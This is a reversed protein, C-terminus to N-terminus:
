RGGSRPAKAAHGLADRLWEITRGLVPHVWGGAIEALPELVFARDHMRPHPIRLGPEDVTREGHLLVDLDLTRPGWRRERARDRGREREIALCRDLLERPGLDTAVVVAANLYPGQGPPGVPLTEQFRSVAIIRVGATAALGALGARLHEARDGVNSGLGIAARESV